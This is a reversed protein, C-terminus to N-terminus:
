SQAEELQASKNPSLNLTRGLAHVNQNSAYRVVCNYEALTPYRGAEKIRNVFSNLAEDNNEQLLELFKECLSDKKEITEIRDIPGCEVNDRVSELKWSIGYLVASLVFSGCILLVITKVELWVTLGLGAVIILVGIIFMLMSFSGVVRKWLDLWEWQEIFKASNSKIKQLDEISLIPDDLEVKYPHQTALKKM